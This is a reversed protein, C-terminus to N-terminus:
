GAPSERCYATHVSPHLSKKSSSFQVSVLKAFTLFKLIYSGKELIELNPPRCITLIKLFKLEIKQLQEKLLLFTNVFKRFFINM